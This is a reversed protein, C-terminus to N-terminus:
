RSPMWRARSGSNSPIVAANGSVEIVIADDPGYVASTEGRLLPVLSRGTMPKAGDPEPGGGALALLKRHFM